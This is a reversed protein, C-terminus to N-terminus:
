LPYHMQVEISRTDRKNNRSNFYMPMLNWDRYFHISILIYFIPDYINDIYIHM